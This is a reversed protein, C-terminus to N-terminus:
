FGGVPVQLYFGLLTTQFLNKANVLHSGYIPWKVNRGRRNEISLWSNFESVNKLLHLKLQQALEWSITLSVTPIEASVVKFCM